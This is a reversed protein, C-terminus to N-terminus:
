LEAEKVGGFVDFRDRRRDSRSKARHELTIRSLSRWAADSGARERRWNSTNGVGIGIASAAAYANQDAGMFVFTWGREQLREIRNFISARDHKRSANELGDTILVLLEDRDLRRGELRDLLEGVADYLPTAGRPQYRDAHMEPATTIDVNEFVLEFPDHSDFQALTVHCPVGNRRHQSLFGNFGGIVDDAIQRMSGSRDLLVSINLDSTPKGVSADVTPRQSRPAPVVRRSEVIRDGVRLLSGVNHVASVWGPPISAYGRAAGCLVGTLAAVTDTDGGADVVAPLADQARLDNLRAHAIASRLAETAEPGAAPAVPASLADLVIARPHDPLSHAVSYLVQEADADLPACLLAATLEAVTISVAVADATAHTVVTDTAVALDRLEPTRAFCVGAAVARVVAGNGFSAPAADHWPVGSRLRNAAEVTARGPRRLRLTVLKSALSPPAALGHDLMARLSRGLLQVDATVRGGLRRVAEAGDCSEPRVWEYPRGLASGVAAGALAGAVKEGAPVGAVLAQRELPLLDRSTLSMVAVPGLHRDLQELRTDM